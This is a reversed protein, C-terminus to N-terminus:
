NVSNLAAEYEAAEEETLDGHLQVLINDKVFLWPPPLTDLNEYYSKVQELDEQTAFSMVRGGQEGGLFPMFFRTGEVAVQPAPGYDEPEMPRANEAELDYAHFADIVRMSPTRAEDGGCAVLLLALLVFWLYRKM